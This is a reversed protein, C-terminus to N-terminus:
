FAAYQSAKVLFDQDANDDDGNNLSDIYDEWLRDLAAQKHVGFLQRFPKKVSKFTGDMFLTEARRLLGIQTPSAYIIHRAVTRGDLGEIKIDALQFGEPINLYSISIECDLDDEKPQNPREKERKRNVMRALLSPNPVFETPNCDLMEMEVLLRASATKQVDSSCKLKGRFMVEEEIGDKGRHTHDNKGRKFETLEINTILTAPCEPTITRESCRWNKTTKNAKKFVYSHRDSAVIKIQDRKTGNSVVTYTVPGEVPPSDAARPHQPSLQVGGYSTRPATTALHQTSDGTAEIM